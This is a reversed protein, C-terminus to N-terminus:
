VLDDDTPAAVAGRQTKEPGVYTQDYHVETSFAFRGVKGGM